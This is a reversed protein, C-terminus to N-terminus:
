EVNFKITSSQVNKKFHTYLLQVDLLVTSVSTKILQPQTETTQFSGARQRQEWRLNCANRDSTKYGSCEDPWMIGTNSYPEQTKTSNLLIFWNVPMPVSSLSKLGCNLSWTCLALTNKQVDFSMFNGKLIGWWSAKCQLIQLILLIRLCRQGRYFASFLYVEFKQCQSTRVHSIRKLRIWLTRLEQTTYVNTARATNTSFLIASLIGWLLNCITFFISFIKVVM